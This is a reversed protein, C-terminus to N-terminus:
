TILVLILLVMLGEWALILFSTITKEKILFNNSMMFMFDM